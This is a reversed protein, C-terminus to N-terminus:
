RYFAESMITLASAEADSIPVELFVIDTIEQGVYRAFGCYFKSDDISKFHIKHGLDEALYKKGEYEFEFTKVKNRSLLSDKISALEAKSLKRNEEDSSNTKEM